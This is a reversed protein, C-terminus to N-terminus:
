LKKMKNPLELLEVIVVLLGNVCSDNVLHML